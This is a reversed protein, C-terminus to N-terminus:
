LKKHFNNVLIMLFIFLTLFFVSIGMFSSDFRWLAFAVFVGCYNAPPFYRSFFRFITNLVVITIFLVLPWLIYFNAYVEGFLTSNIAVGGGQTLDGLTLGFVQPKSEWITSPIIFLFSRLIYTEGWLYPFVSSGSYLVVYKFAVINASEFIPFLYSNLSNDLNSSIDDFAITAASTFSQLNYGDVLALGRFAPWATSIFFLIPFFLLLLIYIQTKYKRFIIMNMIIFYVATIRNFSTFIDFLVVGSGILVAYKKPFKYKECLFLLIGFVCTRAVNTFNLFMIFSTSTSLKEGTTEAWHGGDSKGSLIFSIISILFYIGIFNFCWKKLKDNKIYEVMSVKNKNLFIWSFLVVFSGILINITVVYDQAPNYSEMNFITGIEGSFCIFIMPITIYYLLGILFGDVFKLNNVNIKKILYINIFFIFIWIILFIINM